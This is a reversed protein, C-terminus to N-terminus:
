SIDCSNGRSRLQAYRMGTLHVRMSHLIVAMNKCLYKEDKHRIWYWISPNTCSLCLELANAISNHREQMLGDIHLQLHCFFHSINACSNHKPYKFIALWCTLWRVLRLTPSVLYLVTNHWITYNYNKLYNFAMWHSLITLLFLLRIMMHIMTLQCHTLKSTTM